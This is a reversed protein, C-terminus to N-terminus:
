QSYRPSVVAIYVHGWKRLEKGRTFKYKEQPDQRENGDEELGRKKRRYVDEPRTVGMLPWRVLVILLPAM